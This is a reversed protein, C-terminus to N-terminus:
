QLIDSLAQSSGNITNPFSIASCIGLFRFILYFSKGNKDCSTQFNKFNATRFNMLYSKGVPVWSPIIVILVLSTRTRALM